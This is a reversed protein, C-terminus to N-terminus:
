IHYHMDASLRRIEKRIGGTVGLDVSVLGM